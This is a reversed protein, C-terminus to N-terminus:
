DSFHVHRVLCRQGKSHGGRDKLLCRKSGGEHGPPVLVRSDNSEEGLVGALDCTVPRHGYRVLVALCYRPSEVIVPTDSSM